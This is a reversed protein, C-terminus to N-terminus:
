PAVRSLLQGVGDATGCAIADADPVIRKILGTLVNGPGLEVFTAHPYHSALRRVVDVWRVPSTVQRLLLDRAAEASANPEADVNSYVPFAPSQWAPEALARRLGDTASAVLPSHFAGSVNLRVARKAGAAKALGIAREIGALDGSLVVQEDTNYNAPFVRGAERCLSELPTTLTGLVAAMTGPDAVGAEYMLRGRARVLRVAETLTLSGAAHYATSEGLSHGAAARVLPAITSRVAAWLAAGHALLAPQANHTLTLEDDPGDFMISTLSREGPVALARDCEELARAAEPFADAVDRAM